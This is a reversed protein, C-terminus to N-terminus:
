ANVLLLFGRFFVISVNKKLYRTTNRGGIYIYIRKKPYSICNDDDDVGLLVIRCM